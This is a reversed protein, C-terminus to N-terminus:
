ACVRDPEYSWATADVAEMLDDYWSANGGYNPDAMGISSHEIGAERLLIENIAKTIHGYFGRQNAYASPRLSGDADSANAWQLLECLTRLQDHSKIRDRNTM